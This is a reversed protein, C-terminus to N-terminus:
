GLRPLGEVAALVAGRRREVLFALQELENYLRYVPLFVRAAEESRPLIRGYAELLAPSALGALELRALEAEAHALRLYPDLLASVRWRGDAERRALVNTGFPDGHTLRPPGAEALLTDLRAHVDEIRALASTPLVGLARAQLWLPEYLSRFFASWSAFGGRGAEDLPGWDEGTRSHLTALLEGLHALLGEWEDEGCLHRAQSLDVGERLEMLLWSLPADPGGVRSAYVEPAPLGLKRLVALQRAERALDTDWPTRSLKAVARLGDEAVLVLTVHTLGGDLQRVEALASRTGLGERLVQQLTDWCLTPPTPADM